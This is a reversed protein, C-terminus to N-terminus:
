KKSINWPSLCIKVHIEIQRYCAFAFAFAFAFTFSRQSQDNYVKDFHNVSVVIDVTDCLKNLLKNDM